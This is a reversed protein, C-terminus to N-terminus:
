DINRNSLANYTVHAVTWLGHWAPDLFTGGNISDLEDDMLADIESYSIEDKSNIM